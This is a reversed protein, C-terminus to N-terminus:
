AGWKVLVKVLPIVLALSVGVGGGKQYVWGGGGRRV